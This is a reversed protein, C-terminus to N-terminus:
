RAMWPVRWTHVTGAYQEPFSERHEMLVDWVDDEIAMPVHEQDFVQGPRAARVIVGRSILTAAYGGDLACDFSKQNHELLYGIIRREDENMFPIYGAVSKRRAQNHRWRRWHAAIDILKWMDRVILSVWLVGAFVGVFTATLTMWPELPPLHGSKALYLFLFCTVTLAFAQAASAKLIDPLKLTELLAM